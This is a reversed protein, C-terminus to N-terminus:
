WRIPRTLNPEAAEAYGEDFIRVSSQRVFRMRDEEMKDRNQPIGKLLLAGMRAEEKVEAFPRTQARWRSNCRIIWWKRAARVPGIRDGPQMAFVAAETTPDTAFVSEGRAFPVMLGDLTRSPDISYRAVVTDWGAGSVLEALAHHALEASPVGIVSVQVRDPTYFRAGPNAPDTNRVYFARVEADTVDINKTLLKVEALELRMRDRFEDETLGSVALQELYDPKARERALVDAVENDDPWCGQSIAYQRALEDAVFRKVEELGYRRECRYRLEDRRLPVGNVTVVMPTASRHYYRRAALAGALGGVAFAAVAAIVAFLSYRSPEAVWQGPGIRRLRYGPPLEGAPGADQIDFPDDTRNRRLM